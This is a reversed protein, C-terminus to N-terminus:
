LRPWLPIPLGLGFIFLACVFTSMGIAVIGLTIPKTEPTALSALIVTGAATVALGLQRVFLTFFVM